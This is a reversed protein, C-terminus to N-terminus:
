ASLLAGSRVAQLGAIKAFSQGAHVVRGSERAYFIGDVPAHIAHLMGENPDLVEAIMEGQVVSAGLAARYVLVGGSPALLPISGALPSPARILEPMVPAEGVILGQHQLYRFLAEADRKALEHSVDAEGRLEITVAACAHPWADKLGTSEEHLRNLRQWIMSCAEDFPEGGSESALLSVEAGLYRALPEIRDWLSPATYLHLVAENDCHVDIVIDADIALLMLSKRLSKLESEDPTAALSERLAQRVSALDATGTQALVPTLREYASRAVDAYRRNFNEGSAFDFRGLGRGLLRQAMGIPNAQPVIVIEGCIQGEAESQLLMRRLHYLALLGPPEDAHLAAQLLAKPGVSAGFHLSLLERATGAVAATLPHRVIRM